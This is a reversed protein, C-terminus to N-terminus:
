VAKNQNEPGVRSRIIDTATTKLFERFSKQDEEKSFTFMPYSVKKKTEEDFGRYNPVNIYIKDKWRIVLLGRLDFQVDASYAYIHVTGLLRRQNKNPKELLPWPYFEVFEFKM